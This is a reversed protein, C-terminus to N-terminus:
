STSPTRPGRWALNSCRSAPQMLFVMAGAIVIWLTNIGDPGVADEAYTSLPFTLVLCAFVISILTKM